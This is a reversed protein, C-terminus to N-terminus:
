RCMGAPDVAYYDQEVHADPYIGHDISPFGTMPVREVRARSIAAISTLVIAGVILVIIVEVLIAAVWLSTGSHWRSRRAYYARYLATYDIQDTNSM